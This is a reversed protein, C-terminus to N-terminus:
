QGISVEGSGRVEQHIRGTASAATVSGSGAIDADINVVAATVEVGGSGRISVDLDQVTAGITVDGSGSLDINAVTIAGAQVSVSGSGREDSTLEGALSAITVSGSGSIDLSAGSAVAGVVVDSSGRVDASLNLAAGANVDGSGSVDIALEGVVDGITTASCGRVDLNLAQSAGIETTGAGGRDVRLTRPARITIHPLEAADFQEDGYGRVTAGGDGGCDRVRGRLQGDIKVTGEDAAVTPMPLQGANNDIQVVFDTRDEPVITVIAALNRLSIEEGPFTEAAMAGASAAVVPATGGEGDDDINISFNAWHPGGAVAVIGFMIAIAVAVVFVFREM